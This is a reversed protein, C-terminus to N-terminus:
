LSGLREKMRIFAPTRVVPNRLPPLAALEQRGREILRALVPRPFPANKPMEEFRQFMGVVGRPDLGAQYVMRTARAVSELLEEETFDFIWLGEPRPLTEEASRDWRQIALRNSVHALEFAIVAALENDFSVEKAFALSLLVQTGPVAFSRYQLVKNKRPKILRVTVPSGSIAEDSSALKLALQELYDTADGAQLTQFDKEIASVIVDARM